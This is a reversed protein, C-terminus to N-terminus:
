GVRAKFRRYAGVIRLLNFALWGCDLLLLLGAPRALVPLWVALLLTGLTALHVRFQARMQSEALMQNMNPPLAQMGYHRQLHLWNIFPMIKYLMGNIVNFFVGFLVLVGMWLTLRDDEWFLGAWASLLLLLLSLMALRFFLFSTDSVKRRRKTHLYLTMAGYSAAVTVGSLLVISRLPEPFDPFLASWIGAAAVLAWPFGRSFWAPYAPTLQFMPVVFYSVGSLLTLAWGGLGWAAHVNVLSLLPLPLGKALSVALTVGTAMTALLAAIAIRLAIITAGQAPTRWAAVGVVIIFLGLGTAFAFGAVMFFGPRQTLFASVLLGTAVVLLPHVITALWQPRWMNGGAAVPIFQLLAGCMAQLMFGAVMLHVLALTGPAWRSALLADGQTLLLLGAAM